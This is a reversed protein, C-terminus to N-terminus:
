CLMMLKRSCCRVVDLAEDIVEQGRRVYLSRCAGCLVMTLRVASM